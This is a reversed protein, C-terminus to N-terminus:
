YSRLFDKTAEIPGAYQLFDFFSSPMSYRPMMFLHSDQTWPRPTTTVAAKFGLDECIKATRLNYDAERGTPYAFVKSVSSFTQELYLLSNRLEERIETDKLQSLIRHTQTHPAIQHGQRIFRKIEEKNAPLFAKPPHSPVNMEFAPYLKEKMWFYLNSQPITKLHNRFESVSVRSGDKKYLSFKDGNPLSISKPVFKSTGFVFELQDDWPWLSGDVFGSIVFCTLPIEFESFIDGADVINDKFGDDITFVVTRPPINEQEIILNALDELSIPNYNKKRIYALCKRLFLPDHGAKPSASSKVRHLMFIPVYSGIFYRFLSPPVANISKALLNKM